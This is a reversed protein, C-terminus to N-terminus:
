EDFGARKSAPLQPVRERFTRLSRRRLLDTRDVFHQEAATPTATRGERAAIAAAIRRGDGCAKVITAPGDGILDGGAFVDPLSTELTVPNVTLFGARNVEPKEAGFLSLDAHQGVAVVLADLPIERDSGWMRIPRRRGSEDPEGLMTAACRLGRVRGREALVALPLTQELVPIGEEALAEVEERQAPMERRSRRYIVTVEGAGLRRATRACDIAVDGGGIV